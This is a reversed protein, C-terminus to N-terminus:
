SSKFRIQSYVVAVDNEMYVVSKPDNSGDPFEVNPANQLLSVYLKFWSNGEKEVGFIDCMLQKCSLNLLQFKDSLEHQSILLKLQQEMNYAWNDDEIPDQKIPPKTLFENDKSIQLKMHEANESSMHATVLENIQDKHVVSWEELEKQVLIVTEDTIKEKIAPNVQEGVNVKDLELSEEKTSATIELNKSIGSDSKITPVTKQAKVVTTDEKVNNENNIKNTLTSEVKTENITPYFTYGLTFCVIAIITNIFLNKM